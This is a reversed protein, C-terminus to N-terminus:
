SRASMGPQRQAAIICPEVHAWGAAIVLGEAQGPLVDARCLACRHRYRCRRTRSARLPVATM